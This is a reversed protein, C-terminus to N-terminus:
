IHLDKRTFVAVGASMLILGAAYLLLFSLISNSEMALIGDANFLTLPTAYKLKVFKEGANSLMQILVFAITLGASVGNSKRTENFVASSCFCLGALFIHLGFLGTNLLLFRSIDLQGPFMAESSCILMATAYLDLILVSLLMFGAQTVAIKIRKNPTALLYAMSGSDVYRAILKNSLIIIFILPLLLLLFGYLYNSLFGTITAAGTDSMGFAAFLEPMSEAMTKLSEGLNPDFMSVIMIGYMTLVALFIIILKWNAKIERKLLAASIM